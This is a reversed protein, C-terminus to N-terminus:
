APSQLESTHEESRQVIVGALGNGLALSGTADTGLYDGEVVNGNTGVDSIYVGFDQNASIVNGSGPVTGGITNGSAGGYIAVGSYTNALPGTGSATIGVDDGEVVNGSTGVGAIDVGDAGNGSIVDCATSNTGGIMNDSAGEQILVGQDNPEAQTGTPDTGLFDAYIWDGTAATGTLQIAAGQSFNDIDLGRVTVNSGTITLGDGGGAQNGTIQILPTGSYAPQSEGDILVPNSIAPLPSLPAITQVGAGPIDFDITNISGVANNSDVIAQRLSGPGSDGTNNVLFTSLLTRDEMFDFGPRFPFARAIRAAVHHRRTALSPLRSYELSRRADTM